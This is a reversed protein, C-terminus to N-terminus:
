GHSDGGGSDGGGDGGDGCERRKCPGADESPDVPQETEINKKLWNWFGGEDQDQADGPESSNSSDTNDQALADAYHTLLFAGTVFILALQWCRSKPGIRKCTKRDRDVVSHTLRSKGTSGQKNHIAKPVSGPESRTLEFEGRRHLNEWRILM